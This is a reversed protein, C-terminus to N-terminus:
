QKVPQAPNGTGLGVKNLMMRGVAPSDIRSM